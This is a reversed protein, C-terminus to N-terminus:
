KPYLTLRESRYILDASGWASGTSTANKYNINAEFVVEGSPFTVEIIKGRKNGSDFINGPSILRNQTEPLYDVDSINSSHVERGREEGYQWIQKITQNVEDVEYEVARSYGNLTSSVFHRRWGNDYVFINGNPLLMAAHQGWPWDFDNHRISGEQIDAELPVGNPAVATLLYESTEFGNGEPGANEWGRHPALIWLLENDKSIKALGQSRGSILLSEDREDFWVSNIHIWDYENYNLNFRDIDLIQRLDWERIIAGTNRDLEILFDLGTGIGSKTVAAILNGNAREFIDHHQSYGEIPWEHITRGLMDFEYIKSRRGFLFNGNKLREFPATWGGTFDLQIYWRIEGTHDFLIPQTKFENESGINLESLNMGPEMRNLDAALIEIEPLYDPLSPINLSLTDIGYYGEQIQVQIAILNERGARLGLIPIAHSLSLTDFSQELPKEGLLRYTIHVPLRSEIKGLAALPSLGTPNLILSIPNELLDDIAVEMSGPRIPNWDDEVKKCTSLILIGIIAVILLRM